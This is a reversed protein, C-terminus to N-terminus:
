RTPRASADRGAAAADPEIRLLALDTQKDTGVIRAPIKGPVGPMTVTVKEAKEVVHHNTLIRGDASAIVGSGTVENRRDNVKVIAEVHVVSPTVRKSIEIVREQLQALAAATRRRRIARRPRAPRRARACLPSRSGLPKM